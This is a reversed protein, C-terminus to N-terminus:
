SNESDLLCVYAMHKATGVADDLDSTFYTADPQGPVIVQFEDYETVRKLRLGLSRVIIKAQPITM